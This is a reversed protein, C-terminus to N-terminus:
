LDKILIDPTSLASPHSQFLQFRFLGRYGVKTGRIIIQGLESAYM